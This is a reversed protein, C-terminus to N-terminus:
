SGRRPAPPLGDRVQRVHTDVPGVQGSAVGGGGRHRDRRPLDEFVAQPVQGPQDLIIRSDGPL